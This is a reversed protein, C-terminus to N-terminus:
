RGRDCYRRRCWRPMRKPICVSPPCHIIVDAKEMAASLVEDTMV